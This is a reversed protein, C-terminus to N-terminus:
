FSSYIHDKLYWVRDKDLQINMIWIKMGMEGTSMDTSLSKKTPRRSRMAHRVGVPGQSM